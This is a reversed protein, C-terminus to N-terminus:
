AARGQRVGSLARELTWLAALALALWTAVGDGAVDAPPARWGAATMRADPVALAPDIHYGAPPRALDGTLAFFLNAAFSQETDGYPSHGDTRRVVPRGSRDRGVIVDPAKPGGDEMGDVSIVWDEDRVASAAAGGPGMERVEGPVLGARRWAAIAARIEDLLAADEDRALVIVDATAARGADGRGAPAEIWAPPSDFRPRRPGLAGPRAPGIVVPAPGRAERSLFLLLSWESLAREGTEDSVRAFGPELWRLVAGPEAVSAAFAPDVGRVVWATDTVAAPGREFGDLTVRALLAALLAFLLLRLVLLAYETMQLRRWSPQEDDSFFRISAVRVQRGAGRQLLHIIIPLVLAALGFLGVPWGVSV